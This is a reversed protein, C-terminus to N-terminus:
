GIPRWLRVRANSLTLVWPVGVGSSQLERVSKPDGGDEWRGESLDIRVSELRTAIARVREDFCPWGCLVTLAVPGNV